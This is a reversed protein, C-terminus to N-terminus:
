TQSSGLFKLFANVLDLFITPFDDSLGMNKLRRESLKCPQVTNKEGIQAKNNGRCYQNMFITHRSKFTISMTRTAAKFLGIFYEFLWQEKLQM